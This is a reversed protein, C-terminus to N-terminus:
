VILSVEVIITFNFLKESLTGGGVVHVACQVGVHLETVCEGGINM